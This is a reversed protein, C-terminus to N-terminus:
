AQSKTRQRDMADMAAGLVGNVFRPSTDGGFSKALEIAENIVVKPPTQQKKGMIEFLALRLINRDILSLDSVPRDPAYRAILKDLSAGNKIVGGVLWRLLREGEEGPHDYALRADVTPGPLHRVSDIEFLAQLALQRAKRREDILSKHAAAKSAKATQKEQQPPASVAAVETPPATPDVSLPQGNPGVEVREPRGSRLSWGLQRKHPAGNQPAGNQPPTKQQEDTM